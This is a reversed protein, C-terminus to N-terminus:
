PHAAGSEEAPAKPATDGSQRDNRITNFSEVLAQTVARLTELFSESPDRAEYKDPHCRSLLDHYHRRIHDMDQSRRVGLIRYPDSDTLIASVNCIEVIRTISSKSIIVGEGDIQEFPIFNRDDNLADSLRAGRHAFLWGFLITSSSLEMEVLLRDKEVHHPGKNYEGQLLSENNRM